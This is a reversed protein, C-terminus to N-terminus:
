VMQVQWPNSVQHELDFRAEPWAHFTGFFRPDLCLFNPRRVSHRASGPAGSVMVVASEPPGKGHFRRLRSTVDPIASPRVALGNGTRLPAGPEERAEDADVSFSFAAPSEAARKREARDSRFRLGTGGNRGGHVPPGPRHVRTGYGNSPETAM